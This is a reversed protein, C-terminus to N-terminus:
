EVTSSPPSATLATTAFLRGGDLSRVASTDQPVTEIGGAVKRVDAVKSPERVILM